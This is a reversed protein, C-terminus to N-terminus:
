LDETLWNFNLDSKKQFQRHWKFAWLDETKVPITSMDAMAANVGDAHRRMMFTRMSAWNSLNYFATEPTAATPVADSVHSDHWRGDLMLPVQSLNKMATFSGWVKDSQTNNGYRRIWSNETYSAVGWDDTALWGTSPDVQWANFTSGFFSLPQLTTPNATSTKAATPCLRMKNIDAYYERLSEMFTHRGLSVDAYWPLNADWDNAYLRYSLGWQHLNAKCVTAQARRKVARLAPMVIALLLAIIAIVVLLEILTFAFRKKQCRGAARSM